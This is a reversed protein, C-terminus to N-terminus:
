QIHTFVDGYKWTIEIREPTYVKIETVFELVLERTLETIGSLEILRKTLKSETDNSVAEIQNNLEVVKSEYATVQKSLAESEAQFKEKSINGGHYKEWIAIKTQKSQDILKQLNQIEAFMTKQAKQKQTADDRIAVQQTHALAIQQQLVTLVAETLDAEHIKATTCEYRDSRKVTKCNFAGPKNARSDYDLVRDCRACKVLGAFVTRPLKAPKRNVHGKFAADLKEQVIAFQEDSILRPIANNVVIWEDKPIRKTKHSGVKVTRTKGYIWKGTYCENRLTDKVASNDWLDGRGWKKTFGKRHKSMQKTPVGEANLIKAIDTVSHGQEAMDFIRKVIPSDVPDVVFKHRDAPDKDYGFTPYTALIKGAKVAADKGSRCKVSLDQSYLEYILNRFAVDISSTGHILKETDYFDGISIFRVGWSPFKQELFDGVEIYNRGWRSLDKAIICQVKGQEALKILRQAGDRTFNTGTRGDDIEEIVECGEFEPMKSIFNDLLARQGIISNSEQKVVGDLDIDEDSIRLYKAIVYNM